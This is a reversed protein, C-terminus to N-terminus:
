LLVWEPPCVNDKKDVDKMWQKPAIIIKNKNDNLFAAVYSMSSNAIIQHKCKTMLLLDMYGSDNDNSEVPVYM